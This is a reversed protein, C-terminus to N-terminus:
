ATQELVRRLSAIQRGDLVVEAKKPLRLILRHQRHRHEDPVIHVFYGRSNKLAIATQKDGQREVKIRAYKMSKREAQPKQKM